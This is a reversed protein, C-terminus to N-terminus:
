EKRGAAPAPRTAPPAAPTSPGTTGSAMAPAPPGAPAAEAPAGQAAQTAARIMKQQLERAAEEATKYKGAAVEQAAENVLRAETTLEEIRIDSAQDGAQRRLESVPVKWQGAVKRLQTPRDDQGEGAMPPFIIAQDGAVTEKSADLKKIGEAYTAATDGTLPRAGQDGFQKIAAKHLNGVAEAMAAVASAMSEEAPTEWYLLSKVKAGDGARIADAMQRMVGKPTNDAAISPATAAATAPRATQASVAAATTLLAVAGALARAISRGHAM